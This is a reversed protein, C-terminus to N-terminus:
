EEQKKVGLLGIAFVVALYIGFVLYTRCPSQEMPRRQKLTSWCGRRLDNRWRIECIRDNEPGRGTGYDHLRDSLENGRLIRTDRQLNDAAHEPYLQRYRVCEQCEPRVACHLRQGDGCVHYLVPPLDM